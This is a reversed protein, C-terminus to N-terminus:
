TALMAGDAGSTACFFCTKIARPTELRAVAIAACGCGLVQVAPVGSRLRTTAAARSGASARLQCAQLLQSPVRAKPTAFHSLDLRQAYRFPQGLSVATATYQSRM